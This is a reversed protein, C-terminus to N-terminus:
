PLPPLTALLRGYGARPEEIGLRKRIEWARAPVPHVVPIGLEQELRDIIGLTQWASGLMYIVDGDRSREVSRQIHNYIQESPLEPVKDFPVDIGDMARVDFGADVFYRTFIANLEAPFYSAGVINRVGLARMASVHNQGSTFIPVNYKKEWASVIRAEEAYGKVMFPPAGSPHILDCGQAALGAVEREYAPIVAEFEDRTGRAMKISVSKIEVGNPLFPGLQDMTGPRETPRVLGVVQHKHSASM